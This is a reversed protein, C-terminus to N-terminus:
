KSNSDSSICKKTNPKRRIVIYRRNLETDIWRYKLVFKIAILFRFIIALVISFICTKTYSSISIPM